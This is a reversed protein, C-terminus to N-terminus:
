CKSVYGFVRVLDILESLSLKVKRRMELDVSPVSFNQHFNRSQLNDESIFSLGCKGITAARKSGLSNSHNTSSGEDRFFTM